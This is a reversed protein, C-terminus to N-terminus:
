DNLFNDLALRDQKSMSNRLLTVHAEQYTLGKSKKKHKMKDLSRAAVTTDPYAPYTVPGVDYWRQLKTIRRHDKGDRTSWEDKAVRFAFSSQSVDGRKVKEMVRVHDPDNPNYKIKYGMGRETKALVMTGAKNRGLVVDSSHNFTGRVDDEMVDDFARSDIEETFDRLDAPSDFVAALGEFYHDEGEQRVEVPQAFFRREGGEINEIYDKIKTM